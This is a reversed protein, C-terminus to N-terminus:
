SIPGYEMTRVGLGLVYQGQEAKGGQGVIWYRVRSDELIQTEKVSGKGVIPDESADACFSRSHWFSPRNKEWEEEATGYPGFTGM